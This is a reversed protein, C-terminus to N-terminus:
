ESRLKTTYSFQNCSNPSNPSAPGRLYVGEQKAGAEGCPAGARPCPLSPPPCEPVVHRLGACGQKVCTDGLATAYTHKLVVRRVPGAQRWLGKCCVRGLVLGLIKGWRSEGATREKSRTDRPVPLPSPKPWLDQGTKQTIWGWSVDSDLAESAPFGGDLEFAEEWAFLDEETVM